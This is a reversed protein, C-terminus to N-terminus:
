RPDGETPDLEDPTWVTWDAPGVGTLLRYAIPQGKPKLAVLPLAAVYGAVRILDAREAPGPPTTRKVSILAVQGPKFCALDAPGKSGAARMVDYGNAIMDDRILREIRVGESYGSM